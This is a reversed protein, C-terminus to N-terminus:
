NDFTEWREELASQYDKKPDITRKEIYERYKERAQMKDLKDTLGIKILEEQSPTRRDLLFYYCIRVFLEETIQVTKM